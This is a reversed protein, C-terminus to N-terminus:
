RCDVGSHGSQASNTSIPAAETGKPTASCETLMRQDPLFCHFDARVDSLISERAKGVKVQCVKM